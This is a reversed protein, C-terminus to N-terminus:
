TSMFRWNGPGVPPLNENALSSAIVGNGELVSIKWNDFTPLQDVPLKLIINTWTSCISLCLNLIIRKNEESRTVYFRVLFCHIIFYIQFFTAEDAIFTSLRSIYLLLNFCFHIVNEWGLKIVGIQWGQWSFSVIDGM